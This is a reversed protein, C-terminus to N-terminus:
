ALTALLANADRIIISGYEISIEDRSELERLIRGATARSLNSATALEAQTIPVVEIPPSSPHNLRHGSLRLLVAILRKESTPLMLDDAGGIAMITHQSCLLAIWRWIEPHEDALRQFAHRTIRLLLLDTAAEIEVARQSGSVFAYEGFWFGPGIVHAVRQEHENMAIQMRAIGNAIGYLDTEADGQNYVVDGRGLKTWRGIGVLKKALEPPFEGLWGQRLNSNDTMLGM